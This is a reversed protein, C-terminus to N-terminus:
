HLLAADVEEGPYVYADGPYVASGSRPFSYPDYDGEFPVGAERSELAYQEAHTLLKRGENLVGLDELAKLTETCYTSLRISITENQVYSDRNPGSDQLELAYNLQIHLNYAAQDYEEGSVLFITRGFNGAQIDRRVAEELAGAQELTLDLGEYSQTEPNYLSDVYGGTLRAERLNKRGQVTVDGFISSEQFAPDAALAALVRLAEPQEGDSVPIDYCRYVASSRGEKLRFTLHLQATSRHLGSGWIRELADREAIVAAQADLIKQIGAPDELTAVAAGGHVGYLRATVSELEGAEPVWAEVGWPDAAILCCVAVAAVATGLVGKASGRFVQLSKALLMSAIYYGLVGAVAMCVAMPVTSATTGTQFIDRCFLTYLLSGGAIAACFAVGYRFIPKMWGVAVVEGASESRRRRYLAWAAALLVAGALAYVAILWGNALTVSELVSEEWGEANIIQRSTTDVDLMRTLYMTPSLFEIVGQYYREVGFYFMTMLRTVLWEAGAAIFHFIFYLAAFAFPNGTVFVVATASAFFFFSQGAVALITVALGVPELSGVIASVLIALGGTVAYPLLMMAMGSLFDTVFIGKRTVPLSHYMGVSRPNYLWGWAALACLAAYLLSLTPIIWAVIQYYGATVGLPDSMPEGFLANERILITLFALPFLAGIISAGGWLPWFRALNKKFLTPNFYSTKSRM